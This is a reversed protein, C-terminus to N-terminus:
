YTYGGCLWCSSGCFPDSNMFEESKCNCYFDGRGNSTPEGWLKLVREVETDTDFRNNVRKLVDIPIKKLDLESTLKSIEDKIGM